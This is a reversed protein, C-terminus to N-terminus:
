LDLLITFSPAAAATVSTASDTARSDVVLLNVWWGSRDWHRSSGTVEPDVTTGGQNHPCPNAPFPIELSFPTTPIPRTASFLGPAKSGASRRSITRGEVLGSIGCM